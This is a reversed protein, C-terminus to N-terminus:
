TTQTPSPGAIEDISMPRNIIADEDADADDDGDQADAGLKAFTMHGAPLSKGGMENKLRSRRRGIAAWRKGLRKAVIKQRIGKALSDLLLDRRKAAQSHTYTDIFYEALDRAVKQEQASDNDEGDSHAGSDHVVSIRHGRGGAGMGTSGARGRAGPDGGAGGTVSGKRFATVATAACISKRIRRRVERKTKDRENVSQWERSFHQKLTSIHSTRQSVPCVFLM